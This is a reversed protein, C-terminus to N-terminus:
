PLNNFLYVVNVSKGTANDSALTIWQLRRGRHLISATLSEAGIWTYVSVAPIAFLLIAVKLSGRDASM